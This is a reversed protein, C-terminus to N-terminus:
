KILVPWVCRMMCSIVHYKIRERPSMSKKASDTGQDKNISTPQHKIFPNANAMNAGDEVQKMIEPCMSQFHPVLDDQTQVFDAMM